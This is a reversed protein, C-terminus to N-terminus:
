NEELVMGNFRMDDVADNHSNPVLDHPDTAKAVNLLGPTM